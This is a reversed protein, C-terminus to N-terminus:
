ENLNPPFAKGYQDGGMGADRIEFTATGLWWDAPDGTHTVKGAYSGSPSKALEVSFTLGCKMAMDCRPGITGELHAGTATATLVGTFPEMGDPKTLRNGDIGCRFPGYM